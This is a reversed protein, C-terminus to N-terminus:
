KDISPFFFFNPLKKQFLFDKTDTKKRGLKIKNDWTTEQTVSLTQKHNKIIQIKFADVRIFVESAFGQLFWSFYTTNQIM